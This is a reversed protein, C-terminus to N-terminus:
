PFVRFESSTLLGWVLEQAIPNKSATNQDLQQVVWQRETETPERSLLSRYLIRAAEHSDPQKAVLDTVNNGSPASWPFVSGGNAMFLAQDPSAFFEDTSQGVGSAYLNSFVDVNGRLKDMAQWTAQAYRATKTSEAADASLPSDKEISALETAIYNDLVKTARLISWGLQEPSLSRFPALQFVRQRDAIVQQQLKACSQVTKDIAAQVETTDKSAREIASSIEHKAKALSEREAQLLAVKGQEEKLREEVKSAKQQLSERSAIRNIQAQEIAQTALAFSENSQLISVAKEISTQTQRLTEIEENNKQLDSFAVAYEKQIPELVKNQDALQQKLVELNGEINNWKQQLEKTEEVIADQKRELEAVSNSEHMWKQIRSLEQIRNNWLTLHMQSAQWNRRALVYARDGEKLNTEIPVIKQAMELMPGREKELAGVHGDRATTADVVAKEAAPLGTKSAEAKSKSTSIALDLEKDEGPTLARAQELDKIAQELHKLKAQLDDRTKTVKALQNNSDDLKKKVENFKAEAKDLDVRLVVREKQCNRWATRAEDMNQRSKECRENLSNLQSELEKLSAVVRSSLLEHQASELSVVSQHRLFSEIPLVSSRQYTQSLAIKRVMARIDFKNAILEKTLHDLLEPNAPPNEAHSMDLPHVLGRGLMMAWLRNAWNRAFHEHQVSLEDVLASRRSSKPPVPVGELSESPHKPLYRDDPASYQEMRETGGPLRAGSRFVVGKDFVSEFTADSAAREIYMQQKQEAGKEDKYKAEILGGPSFFGLLGHYDIQLYDNIQPHDHCQACQLDRGFFIRGVDRAIGHPDGERDLFFRQKARESGNWWVSAVLEKAMTDIPKREDVTQRLYSLWKTRDVYKNPRRQMLTKDLWDVMRERHLPDAMFRDVWREWRGEPTDRQFEDLEALTPVVMRLDLSLRRLLLGDAEQPATLLGFDAVVLADLTAADPPPQIASDDAGGIAEGLVLCAFMSLSSWCCWIKKQASMALSSANRKREVVSPFFLTEPPDLPPLHNTSYDGAM